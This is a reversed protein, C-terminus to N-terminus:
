CRACFRWVTMQYIGTPLFARVLEKLNCKPHEKLYKGLTGGKAWRSVISPSRDQIILGEFTVINPHEELKSWIEVEKILM